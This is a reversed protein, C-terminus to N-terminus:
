FQDSIKKPFKFKSQILYNKNETVEGFADKITFDVTFNKSPNIIERAVNLNTKVAQCVDLSMNM